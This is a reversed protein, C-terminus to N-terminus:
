SWYVKLEKIQKKKGCKENESEKGGTLEMCEGGMAYCWKQQRSICIMWGM